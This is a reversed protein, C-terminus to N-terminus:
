LLTASGYEIKYFNGGEYKEKTLNRIREPHTDSILIQGYEGGLVLQLLQDVRYQDLKDFIDDLILLPKKQLFNQLMQYETLKLSISFSKLQGQSGFQKLPSDDITFIWDDKHIGTTTRQLLIDKPRTEELLAAFDDGNLHSRYRIGVNEAANCLISYHEQFAPLFLETFSRRREHIYAAPGIMQESYIELLGDNGPPAPVNWAKLVANRQKLLSQYLIIQALYQPDTQALINDMFRRREESGERILELDGTCIFVLPLLGVHESLRKYPVENRLFEKKKQPIVKAVINERDPGLQFLGDVRFFSEGRRTILKDVLRFKSKGTCLYNVADLLNTKGMGNRGLLCNLKKDLEITQSGYNKFNTISIRDLWLEKMVHSDVCISLFVLM